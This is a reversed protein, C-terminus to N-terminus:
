RDGGNQSEKAGARRDKVKVHRRKHHKKKHHKKKHHKPPKRHQAPPNGPGNFQATAAPSPESQPATPGACAEGECATTPQPNQAALGGETRADYVDQLEDKDQGVLQQRTFIYVDDGTLNAGGFYSPKDSTGTSLLFLCGGDEDSRRCSGSGDEEWEYVDLRDNIDSAVLKDPSEFFVRSGEAALSIVQAPTTPRPTAVLARPNSQLTVDGTPPAGTPNCSVCLLGEGVRYRYYESHGLADYSTQTIASMFVLTRGDESVRSPNMAVLAPGIVAGPMWNAGDQHNAAAEGSEVKAGIRGVYRVSGEHWVYVNCSGNARFGETPGAECTGATAGSALVGNAVFYVYSGDGSVGLVGQVDAGGADVHDPALDILEHTRTDFRYLDNGEDAPGTTADDTLESPSTFVAYRGDPTARMFAAPKIGNPDSGGPGSGNSKQSASVAITSASASTPALRAYIQADGVTTFFVHSGDASIAREEQQYDEAAGGGKDTDQVPWDYAGAFAGASASSGDPLKSVLSLRGSARDWVYLNMVGEIAEPLLKATTEFAVQAAGESEGDFYTMTDGPAPLGAAIQQMVGTASDRLYLTSDGEGPNWLMAYSDSVDEGWGIPWYDRGFSPTPLFGHSRWANGERIAAYAPYSQGGEGGDGGGTVYYAVGAGFASARMLYEAGRADNGNKAVPTAQEYARGDPLGAAAPLYTTFTRSPAVTRGEDSEAVIRYRYTTGPALGKVVQSVGSPQTGDGIAAGGVPAELANAFGHAEFDVQSVYQFRYSTAHARPNVQGRLDASEETVEEARQALVSPGATRFQLEGSPNVGDSNRGVLRLHYTTGGVLGELQAGVANDAGGTFPGAPSCPAEQATGWGKVEFSEGDTYEFACSAPAGEDANIVGHVFAASVGVDTPAETTVDPLTILPGFVDVPRPSTAEGTGQPDAVFVRADGEDLAISGAKAFIGAGSESIVNRGPDIELFAQRGPGAPSVFLRGAGDVALNAGVGASGPVVAACGDICDGASDLEVVGPSGVYIEGSPGVALPPGAPFRGAAFQALFTGSPTFKDITRTAEDTVYVDGSGDVALGRPRFVGSNVVDPLGGGQPTGEPPISDIEIKIGPEGASNFQRVLGNETGHITSAVYVDGDTPGGSNDTALGILSGEEFISEFLVPQVQYPTGDANFEYVHYHIPQADTSGIVFVRDDGEAVALQEPHDSNPLQFQSLLPHRKLAAASGVWLLSLAAGVCMTLIVGRRLPQLHRRM